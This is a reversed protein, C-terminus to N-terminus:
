FAMVVATVFENLDKGKTYSIDELSKAAVSLTMGGMTYAAQLTQIQSETQGDTQGSGGVLAETLTQESRELMYSLSLDDNASVGLSIADNIYHRVNGIRDNVAPQVYFRGVGVSVPGTSYKVGAGGAQYKGGSVGNNVDSSSDFSKEFLSVSVDLGDIPKATVQAQLANKGNTTGTGVNGRANSSGNATQDTNPAYALKVTMGDMLWDSPLHYQVNNFGGIDEGYTYGAGTQGTAHKGAGGAYGYDSGPAYAATSFAYKSSIGGESVFIGVTGYPTTMTMKADDQVTAGDIDQAYAWTYGNDLEGTASLSFENAIGIGKGGTSTGSLSDSSEIAYTAKANGTVTLEGAFSATSIAFSALVALAIKTIKNM